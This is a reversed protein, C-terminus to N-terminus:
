FAGGGAWVRFLFFLNEFPLDLSWDIKKKKVKTQNSNKKQEKKKFHPYKQVFLRIKFSIEANKLTTTPVLPRIPKPTLPFGVAAEKVFLIRM